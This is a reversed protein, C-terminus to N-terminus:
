EVAIFKGQGYTNVRVLPSGSYYVNGTRVVEGELLDDVRIHFDGIGENVIYATSTKLNEARFRGESNSFALLKKTNGAIFIDGPGTNFVLEVERTDVVLNVSGSAEWQQYEFRDTKNIGVSVLDGGGHYELFALDNLHIELDFFSKKPSLWRCSLSNKIEVQGAGNIGISFGQLWNGGGKVVVKEPALSDFIFRGNFGESIMLRGLDEMPFELITEKGKPSTCVSTKKCSFFGSVLLIMLIYRVVM